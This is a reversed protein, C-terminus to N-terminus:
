GGVFILSGVKLLAFNFCPCLFVGPFGPTKSADPFLLSLYKPRRFRPNPTRIGGPTILEKEYERANDRMATKDTNRAVKSNKALREPASRPGVAAVISGGGGNPDQAAHIRDQRQSRSYHRAATRADHGLWANIDTSRIGSRELENRRCTRIAHFPQAWELGVAKMIRRLHTQANTEYRGERIVNGNDTTIEFEPKTSLNLINNLIHYPENASNRSLEELDNKLPLWLPMVRNPKGHAETKPSRMVIEGEDWRIDSWRLILAEGLRCGTWRIISILVKWELCPCEHMLHNLVTADIEREQKDAKDQKLIQAPISIGFFPDHSILNTKKAHSLVGKIRKLDTGVTSRDKTKLREIKFTSVTEASIQDLRLDGVCEIFLSYSGRYVRATRARISQTNLKDSVYREAFDSFSPMAQQQKLLGVKVLKERINPDLKELRSLLGQDLQGGVAKLGELDTVLQLLSTFARNSIAGINIRKDQGMVNVAIRRYPNGNSRTFSNETAM